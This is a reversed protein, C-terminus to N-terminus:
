RECLPPITCAPHLLVSGATIGLSLDLLLVGDVPSEPQFLAYNRDTRKASLGHLSRQVYILMQKICGITPIFPRAGRGIYRMLDLLVMAQGLKYHFFGITDM